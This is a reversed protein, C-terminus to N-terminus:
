TAERYVPLTMLVTTLAAASDNKTQAQPLTRSTVEINGGHEKAVRLADTLGIGTGVRGRDGSLMGRFGLKFIMGQSIEDELIAVGRNTIEVLCDEGRVRTEISVWTQRRGGATWSYKIANHLLNTLARVVDREVVKVRVEADSAHFRFEIGRSRAFPDLNLAAKAILSDVSCIGRDERAYIGSIVYERLSLVQSDMERLMDQAEHLAILTTLRELDEAKRRLDRVSESSVQGKTDDCLARIRSAVEGFMGSRLELPLDGEDCEVLSARMAELDEIWDPLRLQSQYQALLRSLAELLDTGPKFITAAATQSTVEIDGAIPDPGLTRMALDITHSLTLLTTTYTHLVSGIDATLEDLKERLAIVSTVDAVTAVRGLLAGNPDVLLRCNIEVVLLKGTQTRARSIHGALTKDTARTANAVQEFQEYEPHSAFLVEDQLGILDNVSKFEFLRALFDNCYQIINKGDESRSEYMGLPLNGLARDAERPLGDM